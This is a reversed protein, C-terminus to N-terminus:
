GDLRALDGGLCRLVRTALLTTRRASREVRLWVLRVVEWMRLALEAPWPTDRTERVLRSAWLVGGCCRVDLGDGGGAHYTAARAGMESPGYPQV